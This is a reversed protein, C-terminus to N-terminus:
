KQELAPQISFDVTCHRDYSLCHFHEAQFLQTQFGNTLHVQFKCIQFEKECFFHFSQLLPILAFQWLRDKEGSVNIM